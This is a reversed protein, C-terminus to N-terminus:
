RYVIVCPFQSYSWEVTSGTVPLLTLFDGMCVILLPLNVDFFVVIIHSFHHYKLFVFFQMNRGTDAMM